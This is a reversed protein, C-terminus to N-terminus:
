YKKGATGADGFNLLEEFVKEIAFFQVATDIRVFGDSVACSNL